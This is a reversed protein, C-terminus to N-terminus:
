RTSVPLMRTSRIETVPRVASRPRSGCDQTWDQTAPSPAEALAGSLARAVQGMSLGRSILGPLFDPDGM